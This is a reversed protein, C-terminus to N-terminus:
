SVAKGNQDPLSFDPAQQGVTLAVALALAFRHSLAREPHPSAEVAHIYYHNAGMHHPHKKLVSELVDIIEQTGETPQGEHTWFRWPHLDMLSEAYLTAIDPDDPYKAHLDRMAVSYDASLKKLDAAPDNSYRKALTNIVDREKPSA